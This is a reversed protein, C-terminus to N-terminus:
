DVRLSAGIRLFCLISFRPSAIKNKGDPNQAASGRVVSELPILKAYLTVFGLTVFTDICYLMIDQDSYLWLFM